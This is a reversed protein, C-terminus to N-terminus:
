AIQENTMFPINAVFYLDIADHAAIAWDNQTANISLFQVDHGAQRMRQALYDNVLTGGGIWQALVVDTVIAVRM